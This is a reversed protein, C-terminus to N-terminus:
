QPHFSPFTENAPTVHNQIQQARCRTEMNVLYGPYTNEYVKGSLSMLVRQKGDEGKRHVGQSILIFPNTFRLNCAINITFFGM